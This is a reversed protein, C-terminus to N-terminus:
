PLLWTRKLRMFRSASEPLLSAKCEHAVETWGSEFHAPDPRVYTTYTKVPRWVANPGLDSSAELVDVVHSGLQATAMIVLSGDQWAVVRIQCRSPDQNLQRVALDCTGYATGNTVHQLRPLDVFRGGGIIERLDAVCDFDSGAEVYRGDVHVKALYVQNASPPTLFDFRLRNACSVGTGTLDFVALKARFLSESDAPRM